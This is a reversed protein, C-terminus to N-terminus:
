RFFVYLAIFVSLAAEEGQSTKLAITITKDSFVYLAIFVSWM